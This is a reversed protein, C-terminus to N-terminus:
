HVGSGRTGNYAVLVEPLYHVNNVPRGISLFAAIPRGLSDGTPAFIAPVYLRNETCGSPPPAEGNAQKVENEIQWSVAGVVCKLPLIHSPKKAVPEPDFLHSLADRKVNQPKPM